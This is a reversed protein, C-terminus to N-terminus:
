IEKSDLISRRKYPSSLGSLPNEVGLFVIEKLTADYLLTPHPIYLTSCQPLFQSFRGTKLFM